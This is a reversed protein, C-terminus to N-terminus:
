RGVRRSTQAEYRDGSFGADALGSGDCNKSHSCLEEDRCADQEGAMTRVAAM